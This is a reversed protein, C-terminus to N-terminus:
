EKSNKKKRKKEKIGGRLTGSRMREDRTFRDTKGKSIEREERDRERERQEGRKRRRNRKGPRM